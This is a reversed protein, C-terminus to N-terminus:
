GAAPGDQQNKERETLVRGKIFSAVAAGLAVVAAALYTCRLAYIFASSNLAAGTQGAQTFVELGRTNYHSFLAVSIAVGLAMGINRMTALTGSATGRNAAPVNGMIASNNPTQFIGFGFGTIAMSLVINFQPTSAGLTSLLFIGAAMVLAGFASIFRSDVKDSLIGSVPAMCLSALPMPLYLLGAYSPTFGRLDQLYFQSQFILIYQALYVLLAAGNSASFVRNKFLRVDLMPSEQRREFFVFFVILVIGAGILLSFLLPSMRYDGSISLPLLLLMLAAFVIVSGAVDFRVKEKKRASAPVSRAVMIMGVVGIPVNIFFISPWGVHTALFGGIVPGATLGLAVSVAVASLARGRNYPPVANTIIAPGTSFLMAAGLAQIVRTIILATIGASFGCLVSGVIFIGFGTLYIKKQGYLDSLRGITLLLSSVVLLYATVIWEAVSKSVDFDSRIIPMALNIVSSDPASMFTGLGVAIVIALTKKDKM